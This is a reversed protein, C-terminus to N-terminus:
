AFGRGNGEGEALVNVVEGTRLDVWWTPLKDEVVSQWPKGLYCCRVGVQQRLVARYAEGVADHTWVVLVRPMEGTDWARQWHGERQVREYLDVKKRARRGSDENHYEVVVQRVGAGGQWRVLADPELQPRGQEDHVTAEYRSRWTALRGAGRLAGLLELVVQNCKLDHPVRNVRQTDYGKPVLGYWMEALALGVLGLTYLHRFPALQLASDAVLSRPLRDVLHQQYYRIQTNQSLPVLSTLQSDTLVGAVGLAALMRGQSPSVRQSGLLRQAQQRAEYPTLDPRSTRRRPTGSPRPAEDLSFPM